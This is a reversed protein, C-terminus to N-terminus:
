RGLIDNNILITLDSGLANPSPVARVVHVGAVLGMLATAFMACAVSLLAPLSPSLSELISHRSTQHNPALLHLVSFLFDESVHLDKLEGSVEGAARIPLTTSNM